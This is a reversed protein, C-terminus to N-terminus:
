TSDMCGRLSHLASVTLSGVTAPSRGLKTAVQENALGDLFKLQIVQQYTSPLKDLAQLLQSARERRIWQDDSPTGNTLSAAEHTDDGPGPPNRLRELATQRVANVMWSLFEDPSRFVFQTKGHDQLDRHFQPDRRLVELRDLTRRTAAQVVSSWEDPDRNALIRRAIALLYPRHSEILPALDPIEGNGTPETM